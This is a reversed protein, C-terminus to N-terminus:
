SKEGGFAGAHKCRDQGTGSSARAARLEDELWEEYPRHDPLAIWEEELNVDHKGAEVRGEVVIPTDWIAPGANPPAGHSITIIPVSSARYAAGCFGCFLSWGNGDQKVNERDLLVGCNPCYAPVLAAMVEQKQSETSM